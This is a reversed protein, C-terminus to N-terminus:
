FILFPFSLQSEFPNIEFRMAELWKKSDLGKIVEQYTKPEDQDM